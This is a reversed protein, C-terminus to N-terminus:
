IDRRSVDKPVLYYEHNFDTTRGSPLTICIPCPVPESRILVKFGWRHILDIASEANYKRRAIEAKTLERNCAGQNLYSIRGGAKILWLCDAATQSILSDNQQDPWIKRERIVTMAFRTLEKQQEHNM